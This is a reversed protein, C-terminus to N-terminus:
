GALKFVTDGLKALQRAAAPSLSQARDGWRAAQGLLEALDGLRKLAAADTAEDAAAGALCERVAAVTPDLERKRRERLVVLLMEWVDDLTVFHDRRDGLHHVVKALGWNQLEKLSASVNSRAIGLLEAIEDAPLPGPAIMLLAHTQAVSRSIGWRTGMEGWHLIFKQTTESLKM